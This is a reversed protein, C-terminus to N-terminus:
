LSINPPNDPSHGRTKPLTNKPPIISMPFHELSINSYTSTYMETVDSRSRQGQFSFDIASRLKRRQTLCLKMM